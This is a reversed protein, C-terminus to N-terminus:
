YPEAVAKGDVTLTSGQCAVTQGGVAIVRKVLYDDGPPLLGVASLGSHVTRTFANGSQPVPPLWGGPDKFVVPEGPEPHWGTLTAFKNVAVRDGVQLTNEMSGSPISFMQFLCTKILVAVVLGIAIMMPLEVYWPRRRRWRRVRTAGETM